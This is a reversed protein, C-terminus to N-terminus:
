TCSGMANMKQWTDPQNCTCRAGSTDMYEDGQSCTAPATAIPPLNIVPTLSKTTVGDSLWPTTGLIFWNSGDTIVVVSQLRETLVFETAFDLTELGDPLITCINSSSDLKKITIHLGRNLPTSPPLNVFLDGSSADCIVLRDQDDVTFPSNASTVLAVSHVLIVGERRDGPSRITTQFLLGPWFGNLVVLALVIVTLLALLRYVHTPSIPSM